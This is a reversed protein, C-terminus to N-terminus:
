SARRALLELNTADEATSPETGSTGSQASESVKKEREFVQGFYRAMEGHFHHAVRPDAQCAMLFREPTFELPEGTDDDVVGEWRVGLETVLAKLMEFTAHGREEEFKGLQIGTFRYSLEYFRLATPRRLWLTFMGDFDIEILEDTKNGLKFM